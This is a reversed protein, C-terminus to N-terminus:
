GSGRRRAGTPRPTPPADPADPAAPADSRHAGSSGAGVGTPAPAPAHDAVWGGDVARLGTPVLLRLGTEQRTIVPLDYAEVRHGAPKGAAARAAMAAAHARLRGATRAPGELLARQLSDAVLPQLGPDLEVGVSSRGAALAAAMTTGTGVFPDLVRDGQLAYMHILRWPLEFPFAASRARGGHPGLRQDAGRLDTWLDSFWLNREEWFYASASRRARDAPGFARKGGKRFILVYEHEYTVYAGGPLMGSGMFKNPANTPKRWLVDPLPTLGLRMLALSLRVHNPYLCFEGRLSRTADGINVCLLGGPALARACGAWVADLAAHMREFAAMGDGAELLAPVGPDLAGFTEDWMEIMPYPPSTVVLQVAGAEVASLDRADGILLAHSTQV